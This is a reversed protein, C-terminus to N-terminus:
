VGDEKAAAESDIEALIERVEVLRARVLCELDGMDMDPVM